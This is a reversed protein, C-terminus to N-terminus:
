SIRRIPRLALVVTVAAAVITLANQFTTGNYTSASAYMVLPVFWAPGLRPEAVAVVAVLLVFYNLWVIPSCALAAALALIFAKRDAGRRSLVFCGALLAIGLAAWIVRAVSTPAGLDLALAYLTYSQPTEI